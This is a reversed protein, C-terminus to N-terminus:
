ISYLLYILCTLLLACLVLEEWGIAFIHPVNTVEDVAPIKGNKPNVHVGATALNLGETVAMRGVALIVTDFVAAFESGFVTNKISVKIQGDAAKEFAIPQSDRMFNTGHREMHSVVMEAIESDFGRLPVSRIAVTTDYGLATLFGATELSIYSAGVCLTKGPPKPLSFVDDSTICCERAGPVDLYSPRGGVAIVFRESTIKDVKGNKKTATITHEDIFSGFANIYTVNNDRLATRYGFNLSGIHDQIGNVMKSWDHGDSRLKWGFERADSFSEGLIGAQHMLKKPICGVNVCTGGLGWSTGAPSPKV